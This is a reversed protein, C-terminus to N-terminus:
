CLHLGIRELVYLLYLYLTTSHWSKILNKLLIAKHFQFEVYQWEHCFCIMQHRVHKYCMILVIVKNSSICLMWCVSIWSATSRKQLSCIFFFSLLVNDGCKSSFCGRVVRIKKHEFNFVFVRQEIKKDSILAWSSSTSHYVEHNISIYIFQGRYPFFVRLDETLFHASSFSM